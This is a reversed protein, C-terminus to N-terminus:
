EKEFDQSRAEDLAKKMEVTMFREQDESFEFMSDEISEAVESFGGFLLSLLTEDNMLRKARDDNVMESLFQREDESYTDLLYKEITELVNSVVGVISQDYVEKQQTGFKKNINILANKMALILNDPLAEPPLDFTDEIYGELDLDLIQEDNMEPSLRADLAKRFPGTLSVAIIREPTMSV